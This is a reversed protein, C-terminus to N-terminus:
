PAFYIYKWNPVQAARTQAASHTGPPSSRWEAIYQANNYYNVYSRVKVAWEKWDWRDWLWHGRFNSYKVDRGIDNNHLDMARSAPPSGTYVEYQDGILNALFGGAYRRMQMNWFIHRYADKQTNEYAQSPYYQESKQKAREAAQYVRYSIWGIVAAGILVQSVSGPNLQIVVQGDKPTQGAPTWGEGAARILDDLTARGGTSTMILEDRRQFFTGDALSEQYYLQTQEPETMQLTDIEMLLTPIMEDPPVAHEVQGNWSPDVAPDVAPEVPDPDTPTEGGGDFCPQGTEPDYLAGGDCGYTAIWADREKEYAAWVARQERMEAVADKMMGSYGRSPYLQRLRRELYRQYDEN